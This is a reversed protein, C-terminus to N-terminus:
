TCQASMETFIPFEVRAARLWAAWNIHLCKSPSIKDSSTFYWSSQISPLPPSYKKNRTKQPPGPSEEKRQTSNKGFKSNYCSSTLYIVFYIYCFSGSHQKGITLVQCICIYLSQLFQVKKPLILLKKLNSQLLCSFYSFLHLKLSPFSIIWRRNKNQMLFYHMTLVPNGTFTSYRKRILIRPLHCLPPLNTKKKGCKCGTILFAPFFQHIIVRATSSPM